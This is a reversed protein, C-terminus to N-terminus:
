CNDSKPRQRPVIYAGRVEDVIRRLLDSVTISRRIAQANLWEAAEESFIITIRPNVKKEMAECVPLKTLSIFSHNQM